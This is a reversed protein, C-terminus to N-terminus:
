YFLIARTLTFCVYIKTNAERTSNKKQSSNRAGLMDDFVIVSGKYKKIPKLEDSKENKPCQNPSRTLIHFPRKNGIKELM